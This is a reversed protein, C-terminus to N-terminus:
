ETAEWNYVVIEPKGILLRHVFREQQSRGPTLWEASPASLWFTGRNIPRGRICTGSPGLWTSKGLRAEAKSIIQSLV